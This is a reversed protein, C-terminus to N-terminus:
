HLKEKSLVGTVESGEFLLRDVLLCVIQNTLQHGVFFLTVVEVKVFRVPFYALLEVFRQHARKHRQRRDSDYVDLHYVHHLMSLTQPRETFCTNQHEQISWRAKPEEVITLLFIHIHFFM